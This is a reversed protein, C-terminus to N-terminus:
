DKRLAIEVEQIIFLQVEDVLALGTFEAIYHPTLVRPDTNARVRGQSLMMMVYVFVNNGVTSVAFPIKTRGLAVLPAVSTLPSIM